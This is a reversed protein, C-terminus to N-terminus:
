PRQGRRRDKSRPHRCGSGLAAKSERHEGSWPGRHHRCTGRHPRALECPFRRLAFAPPNSLDPSATSTEKARTGSLLVYAPHEGLAVQNGDARAKEPSASHLKRFIELNAPNYYPKLPVAVVFFPDGLSIRRPRPRSSYRSVM